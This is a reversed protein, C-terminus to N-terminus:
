RETPSTGLSWPSPRDPHPAPRISSSAPYPRAGQLTVHRSVPMGLRQPRGRGSSDERTRRAHNSSPGARAAQSTSGASKPLMRCRHGLSLSSEGGSGPPGSLGYQAEPEEPPRTGLVRSFNEALATSETPVGSGCGLEPSSEAAVNLSMLHCTCTSTRGSELGCVVFHKLERSYLM